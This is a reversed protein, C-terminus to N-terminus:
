GQAPARVLPEDNLTTKTPGQDWWLEQHSTLYPYWGSVGTGTHLARVVAQLYTTLTPWSETFGDFDPALEMRLRWNAAIETTSSPPGEPLLNAWTTLGNHCRLSEIVEPPLEICAELDLDGAPPALVAYTAPAHRALWQDISAWSETISM